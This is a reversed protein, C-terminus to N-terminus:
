SLLALTGRRYGKQDISHATEGQAEVKKPLRNLNETVSQKIFVSRAYQSKIIGVGAFYTSMNGGAGCAADGSPPVLYIYINKTVCSSCCIKLLGKFKLMIKLNIAYLTCFVSVNVLFAKLAILSWSSKQAVLIFPGM